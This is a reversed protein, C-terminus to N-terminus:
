FIWRTSGGPEVNLCSTASRPTIRYVPWPPPGQAPANFPATLGLGSEDVACPWGHRAWLAAARGIDARNTVREAVGEFVLDFDSMSVSISCRADRAVNRAKRTVDGTQFWFTGDMWIAGVATVHPSGDPNITALWTTVRGLAGTDRDPSMGSDLGAAVSAWDQVKMGQSDDLNRARM